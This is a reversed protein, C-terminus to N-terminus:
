VQAADAAKWMDDFSQEFVPFLGHPEDDRAEILFTPSDLGRARHLYLQVLARARDILTINFRIPQDYTRLQLSIMASLTVSTPPRRTHDVGFVCRV